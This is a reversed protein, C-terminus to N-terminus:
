CKSLKDVVLQVVSIAPLVPELSQKIENVLDGINSLDSFDPIAFPLGTTTMDQLLNLIAEKAEEPLRIVGFGPPSDDPGNIMLQAMTHIVPPLPQSAAQALTSVIAMLPALGAVPGLKHELQLQANERVCELIKDLAPNGTNAPPINSFIDVLSNTQAMAADMFQMATILADKITAIFSLQPVLLALKIANCILMMLADMLGALLAGVDPIGTDDGNGNLLNPLPFLLALPNGVVGVMTLAAGLLAMMKTQVDMLAMVFGIVNFVPQLSALVPQLAEMIAQFPDMSNPISQSGSPLSSIKAGGPLQINIPSPVGGIQICAGM